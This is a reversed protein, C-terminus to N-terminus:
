ATSGITGTTERIHLEYPLIVRQPRTAGGAIRDLLIEAGTRGILERPVEVTTLQLPGVSAFSMDDFGAVAIDAPVSRGAERCADLVGLAIVDNGCIFADVSPMRALIKAARQHGSDRTLLGATDGANVLRVGSGDLGGVYGRTRDRSVSSDDPGGLIAVSMRGCGAVHLSIAQAAAYNDIGVWDADVGEVRRHLQVFPVGQAQLKELLALDGFTLSTFLLGASNRDVQSFAAEAQREGSVGVHSVFVEFGRSECTAIVGSAVEPYFPNAIDALLLGISGSRGHRLELAVQNRRFGLDDAIAVIRGRLEESVGPRGSLAYSVAASTVGAAKAVDSMTVRRPPAPM